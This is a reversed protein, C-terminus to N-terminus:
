KIIYEFTITISYIGTLDTANLIVSTAMKPQNAKNRADDPVKNVWSNILNVRTCKGDDSSTYPLGVLSLTTEAGNKDTVVVSKIDMIAGPYNTEGANIALAGFSLGDNGEPFDLSVTYTGAGDVICDHPIVTPACDSPTYADGVNYSGAGGSWMIYAVIEDSGFSEGGNDFEDPAAEVLEAMEAEIMATFGAGAANEEAYCHSTFIELMEDSIMTLTTKNFSDGTSWLVPCYNYQTCLDLFYRSYIETNDKLKSKSESKDYWPLVGWEGIIIGYGDDTFRTLKKLFSEMTAFDEKIGWKGYVGTDNDGCYNWPTYYHVSLFLKGNATDTPMKYSDNCTRDIDTNYGAILLFRDDNNGGSKRVIDVFKQNIANTTEYKQADTLYGSSAWSSNNNLSDGLEENASEFILMDSYDAFREAIQTWMSEYINWAAEVDAANNSGFRAWWGYDWHDNVIVFMEADLAYNVIEEVRDLFDERITYDGNDIDMVSTWAVPIRITDFGCNKMAQIMEPTTVPQGWATEFSSVKTTLPNRASLTAEMTNGLDIGNGLYKTLEKATMSTFDMDSFVATNVYSNSSSVAQGSSSAGAGTWDMGSLTFTITMTTPDTVSTFNSVHTTMDDSVEAIKSGEWANIPDNTDFVGSSKFASKPETQTITLATGDVTIEDWMINCAKLPSQNGTAIGSDTIYIATLNKIATIGASKAADSLDSACDFTVTYQGDQTAFISPGVENGYYSTDADNYLVHLALEIYDEGEPATPQSIATDVPETTTGTPETTENTEQTQEPAPTEEQKGCGSLCLSAMMTACLAMPIVKKNRKM